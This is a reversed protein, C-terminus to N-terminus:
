GDGVPPREALTRNYARVAQLAPGTDPMQIVQEEYVAIARSQWLTSLANGETPYLLLALGSPLLLLFLRIFTRRSM